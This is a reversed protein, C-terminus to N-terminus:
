GDVFSCDQDSHITYVENYKTNNTIIIDAFFYFVATTRLGCFVTM